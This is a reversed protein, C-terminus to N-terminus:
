LNCDVSTVSVADVLVPTFCLDLDLKTLITGNALEVYGWYRGPPLEFLQKDFRFIIDGNDNTDFAPYVVAPLEHPPTEGLRPLNDYGPWCGTMIIPSKLLHNCEPAKIVLRLNDVDVLQGGGCGPQVLRVALEPQGQCIKVIAM